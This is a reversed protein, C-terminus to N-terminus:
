PLVASESARSFSCTPLPADTDTLLYSVHNPDLTSCCTVQKLGRVGANITRAAFPSAMMGSPASAAYPEALEAPVQM